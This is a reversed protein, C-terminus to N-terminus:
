EPPGGIQMFGSLQIEGVVEEEKQEQLCLSCAHAHTPPPPSSPWLGEQTLLCARHCPMSIEKWFHENNIAYAQVFPGNPPPCLAVTCRVTYEYQVHLIRISLCQPVIVLVSIYALNIQLPKFFSSFFFLM